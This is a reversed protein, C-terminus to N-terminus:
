KAEELGEILRNYHGLKFGLDKLFDFSLQNKEKATVLDYVSVFGEDELKGMLTEVVPTPFGKFVEPMWQQLWLEKLQEHNNSKKEMPVTMNNSTSTLNLGDLFGSSGNSTLWSNNGDLLNNGSILGLGAGFDNNLGLESDLKLGSGLGSGVIGPPGLLGPSSRLSSIGRNYPPSSFNLDSLENKQIKPSKQVSHEMKGVIESASSTPATQKTAGAGVVTWGEKGAEMIDSSDISLNSLKLVKKVSSKIITARMNPAYGSIRFMGQHDTKLVELMSTTKPLVTPKRVKSGLETLPFWGNERKTQLQEYMYKAINIRWEDIVRDVSVDTVKASVLTLASTVHNLIFRDKVDNELVEMLKVNAPLGTPKSAFAGLQSAAVPKKVTCLHQYCRKRWLEKDGSLSDGKEGKEAKSNSDGKGDHSDSSSMKLNSKKLREVTQPANDPGLKWAASDPVNSGERRQVIMETAPGTVEFRNYPDARLVDILKVDRPLYDPRPVCEAIISLRVAQDAFQFVSDRWAEASKKFSRFTKTVISLSVSTTGDPAERYVLRKKADCSIALKWEEESHDALLHFDRLSKFNLSDLVPNRLNFLLFYCVRDIQEDTIFPRQEPEAMYAGEFLSLSMSVGSGVVQFITPASKIVDVFKLQVAIKRLVDPRPAGTTISTFLVNKKGIAGKNRLHQYIDYKWQKVVSKIFKGEETIYKLAVLLGEDGEEFYAFRGKTDQKFANKISEEPMTSPFGKALDNFNMFEGVPNEFSILLIFSARALCSEVLTDSIPFSDHKGSPQIMSM